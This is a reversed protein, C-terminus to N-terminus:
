KKGQMTKSPKQISAKGGKTSVSRRKGRAHSGSSYKKGYSIPLASFAGVKGGSSREYWYNLDEALLLRLEVRRNLQGNEPSDNPAAPHDSGYSVSVISSRPVGKKRLYDYAAKARQLGLHVLYQKRNPERRPVEQPEAHGQIEIVVGTAQNFRSLIDDMPAFSAPRLVALRSDFYIARNGFDDWCCSDVYNIYFTKVLTATDSRMVPVDVRQTDVNLGEKNLAVRYSHNSLVDLQYSGDLRTITSLSQPAISRERTIFVLETGPIVVTSDKSPHVFGRITVPREVLHIVVPQLSAFDGLSPPRGTQCAVLAVCPGLLKMLFSIMQGTLRCFVTADARVRLLCNIMIM